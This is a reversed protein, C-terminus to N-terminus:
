YEVLMPKILRLSEPRHRITLTKTEDIFDGDLQYGFEAPYDFSVEEVGEIIELGRRASAGGSRLAGWLTSLMLPTSLRRFVVAVLPKELSAARSLEVARKGVYTYPNTNLVIASFGNPIRRGDVTVTFHPFKRDYDVFWAKLAAYVFLPQGVLRKFSFTREVQRVVEADYGIGAHFTFYRGNAEGLGIPSVLGGDLGATLQTVALLPDNAMGLSRAFVNTSGGPLVGLAVNSGALGTAVENLTGDGGFAIVADLGRAVADTAFRTAHGRESTEVVQVDHHRALYQHVQVTNRPTVSTAFSNVILLIRM